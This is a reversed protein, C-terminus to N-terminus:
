PLTCCTTLRLTFKPDFKSDYELKDSYKDSQELKDSRLVSHGQKSTCELMYILSCLDSSGYEKFHCYPEKEVRSIKNLSGKELTKPCKQCTM